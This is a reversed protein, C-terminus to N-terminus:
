KSPIGVTVFSVQVNILLTADHVPLVPNGQIKSRKSYFCTQFTNVECPLIDFNTGFNLRKSSLRRTARKLAVEAKLGRQPVQAKGRARKTM